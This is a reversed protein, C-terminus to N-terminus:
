TSKREDIFFIWNMYTDKLPKITIKKVNEKTIIERSFDDTTEYDIFLYYNKYEYADLYHKETMDNFTVCVTYEFRDINLYEPLIYSLQKFIILLMLIEIYSDKFDTNLIHSLSDFMVYYLPFLMTMWSLNDLEPKKKEKKLSYYEFREYKYKKIMKPVFIINMLIIVLFIVHTTTGNTTLGLRFTFYAAIFVTVITTTIKFSYGYEKLKKCNLSRETLLYNLLMIVIPVGIAIIKYISDLM